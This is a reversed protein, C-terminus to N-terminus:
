LLGKASITGRRTAPSTGAVRQQWAEFEEIPWATVGPSLKVPAPFHGDAVWRWITAGTVPLLGARGPSTALDSIRLYRKHM